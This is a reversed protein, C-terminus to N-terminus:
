DQTALSGIEGAELCAEIDVKEQQRGVDDYVCFVNAASGPMRLIEWAQMAAEKASSAKIEIEWTVVFNRM